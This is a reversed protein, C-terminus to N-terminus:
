AAFVAFRILPKLENRRVSQFRDAPSAAPAFRRGQCGQRFQRVDSLADASNAAISNERGIGSKEIQRARGIGEGVKDLIFRAQNRGERRRSVTADHDISSTEEGVQDSQWADIWHPPGQLSRVKEFMTHCRIEILKKLGKADGIFTLRYRGLAFVDNGKEIRRVSTGRENKFGM